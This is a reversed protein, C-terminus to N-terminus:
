RVRDAADSRWPQDRPPRARRLCWSDVADRDGMLGPALGTAPDVRCSVVSTPRAHTVSPRTGVAGQVVRGWLPAAAAGGGLGLTGSDLGVWAVAVVGEAHGVFWADRSADSTGTKGRATYGALRAGRGTGTAVAGELAHAVLWTSGEPAIRRRRRGEGGTRTGNPRGVRTVVRPRAVVGLTAFASHAELVQVPTAEFAGLLFSPSRDEPVPMGAREVRRAVAERGCHEGLRVFPRNHSRVLATRASVDGHDRRDHNRPSWGDITLPGDDILTSLRVPAQTGCDDVAELLTLPKITSGPQRQARRARDFGDEPRSPDGGVYALVDGTQADMVVVVAHLPAGRLRQHGRRLDRLWARSQEVARAQLWPDITTDIEFGLQRDRRHAADDIVAREVRDLLHSTVSRSPPHMELGLGRRKAARVETSSAWGLEAMRDLAKDRRERARDPHEVPHLANPGQLVAALLAGEHLALRTASKGFYVRSARGLGYVGVGDVHGYYVTNLYAELIEEKSHAAELSLARVAESAKRDLARRPKLDRNKVLQQTLTSGGEAVAGKKANALAARALARGSVGAHDFFRHDELALLPRWAAEPLEALSVPEVPARDSAFSTALVEPELWVGAREARVPEGQADIVSVVREGDLRLGLLEASHRRAEHRHAHRLIWLVEPTRQWTGPATPRGRVERYGLRDLRAGIAQQALTRGPVFPYPASRVVVQTRGIIQDLDSATARGGPLALALLAFLTLLWKM